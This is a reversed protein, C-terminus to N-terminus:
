LDNESQVTTSSTSEPGRGELGSHGDEETLGYILSVDRWRAEESLHSHRALYRKLELLLNRFPEAKCEHALRFFTGSVFHKGMSEALNIQSLWYSATEMRDFKCKSCNEATRYPTGSRRPKVLSHSAAPTRADEEGTVKAIKEEFCVSKKKMQVPRAKESSKKDTAASPTKPAPKIEQKPKIALKKENVLKSPINTSLSTGFARKQRSNLPASAVAKSAETMKREPKQRALRSRAPFPTPHAQNDM